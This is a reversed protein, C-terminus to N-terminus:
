HHYQHVVAHGRGRGIMWKNIPTTLLFAVLLAFALAGWFLASTLGAAMAGPVVLMIGNDIIEMVLISVTDAALAVKLASRLSLGARLVGRMTLAYGFVFALVVALAITALDHLGLATGIVMGLVEGIACGTLCHATAQAATRWSVPGREHAHHGPSHHEHTAM